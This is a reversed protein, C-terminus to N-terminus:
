LKKYNESHKLLNEATITFREPPKVPIIRADYLVESSIMLPKGSQPALLEAGTYVFYIQKVLEFVGIDRRLKEMLEKLKEWERQRELELIRRVVGKGMLFNLSPAEHHQNDPVIVQTLDQEKGNQGNGGGAKLLFPTLLLFFFNLFKKNIQKM